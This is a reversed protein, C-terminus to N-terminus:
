ALPEMRNDGYLNDTMVVRMASLADRMRLELLRVMEPSVEDDFYIEVGNLSLRTPKLAKVPMLSAARVIAPAAVFSILGTILGRRSLNM